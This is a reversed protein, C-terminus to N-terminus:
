QKKCIKISWSEVDAKRFRELDLGTKEYDISGKRITKTATIKGFDVKPHGTEKAMLIIRERLIDQKEKLEDLERTVSIYEEICDGGDKKMPDRYSINPPTDNRVCELFEIAAMVMLKTEEETPKPVDIVISEGGERYSLYYIKDAKSVFYQWHVQALYHPPIIGSIATSHDKKGSFKIEVAEKTEENYGDLSAKFAENSELQFNKPQFNKGTHENFWDRAIPEMQTGRAQAFNQEPKSVKGTKEEWLQLATKYPSLGLIIPIDSSGISFKRKELFELRDFTAWDTIQM